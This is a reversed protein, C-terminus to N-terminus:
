KEARRLGPAPPKVIGQSYAYVLLELRDAVGLKSFASTLHHSVTTQSIFLRESIQKNRLGECVLEVVEQERRTLSTIKAEEPDSKKRGVPHALESMMGSILHQDFWVEGAHVREIAKLIVEAAKAKHVLGRAGLRAAQRHMEYDNVGTLVLVRARPAAEYLRPLCDLGSDGELNLDLVIVDPQTSTAVAVAADANAAEGVVNMDRRAEILLRLGARIVAHDDVLVIKIRPREDDTTPM